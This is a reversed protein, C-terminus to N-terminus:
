TNGPTARRAHRGPERGELSLHLVRNRKMEIAELCLTVYGFPRGARSSMSSRRNLVFLEEMRCASGNTRWRSVELGFVLRPSITYFVNGQIADNRSRFGTSLDQNFTDDLASSGAVSWRANVQYQIQAWGGAERIGSERIPNFTHLIGGASATRRRPGRSRPLKNHWPKRLARL